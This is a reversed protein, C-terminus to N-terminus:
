FNFTIGIRGDWLHIKYDEVYHYTGQVNLGVTKNFFYKYGFAAGYTLKDDIMNLTSGLNLQGYFQSNGHMDGHIEFGLEVIEFNMKYEFPGYTKYEYPYRWGGRDVLFGVHIGVNDTFRYGGDLSVVFGSDLGENQDFQWGPLISLYGTKAQACVALSGLLLVAAILLKKM